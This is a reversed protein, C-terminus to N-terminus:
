DFEGDMARRALERGLGAMMRPAAAAMTTAAKAPL